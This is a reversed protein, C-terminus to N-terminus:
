VTFFKEEKGNLTTGDVHTLGVYTDNITCHILYQGIKDEIVEYAKSAWYVKNGDAIAQKIQQLNM